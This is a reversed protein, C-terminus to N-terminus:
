GQQHRTGEHGSTTASAAPTTSRGRCRRSRSSRGRSRGSRCGSGVANSTASEVAACANLVFYQLADVGQSGLASCTAASNISWRGWQRPITCQELGGQCVRLVHRRLIVKIVGAQIPAGHSHADLIRTILVAISALVNGGTLYRHLFDHVGPGCTGPMAGIHEVWRILFNAYRAYAVAFAGVVEVPGHVQTAFLRRKTTALAKWVQYNAILFVPLNRGQAHFM